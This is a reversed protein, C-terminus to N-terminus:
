LSQPFAVERSVGAAAAPGRDTERSEAGLSGWKGRWAAGPRWAMSSRKVAERTEGETKAKATLWPLGM